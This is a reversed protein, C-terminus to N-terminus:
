RKPDDRLLQIITDVKTELDPLKKEIKGTQSILTEQRRKFTDMDRSRKKDAAELAEFRENVQDAVVIPVIREVIRACSGKFAEVDDHFDDKDFCERVIRPAGDEIIGAVSPAIVTYLLAGMVGSLILLSAINKLLWDWANNFTIDGITM